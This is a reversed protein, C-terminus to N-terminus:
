EDELNAEREFQAIMEPLALRGRAYKASDSEPFDWRCRNYRRFAEPVSGANRWAEGSWFLGDACLPNDPWQKAFADFSNAATQYHTRGTSRGTAEALQGNKFHCQGVRFAMKAAFTHDPFREVFKSGVQAAVTYNTGKYFYENIRIMVNAILPSQPYTSALTVYSELADDFEGAEEYCQALKYQADAALTHDGYSKVITEYAEIAADWDELEQAFQGLLYSVRPIYKPDPFDELLENLIRRGAELERNAEEERELALHGKFLEFYSEAIHFRTQIALDDDGFIKSFAAVDGDTGVAVPVAIVHEFTGDSTNGPGSITEDVYHVSVTSGFFCEIEPLTASQNGPTPKQQDKLGFSGTFVGSHTLTEELTVTEEEGDDSTIRVRLKDRESSVDMDPDHVVVFLKEGVHLSTVPDEYNATTLMLSGDTKLRAEGTVVENTGAPRLKDDYNAGIIDPGTVNLVPMMYDIEDTMENMTGSIYSISMTATREPDYPIKDPSEPGGLQMLMQGVFRGEYLAWNDVDPPATTPEGFRESIQCTITQRVKGTVSLSVQISSMSDKAADPDYVEVTLPVQYAIGSIADPGASQDLSTFSIEPKRGEKTPPAISTGVVRIRADSPTTVFIQSDRTVSHGPFTNQEDNYRLYVTDGPKVKLTTDATKNTSDAAFTDIEGRFVGSNEETEIAELDFVAEGLAVQFTLSDKEATQDLDYDTIEVGIREGPDIRMLDKRITIVNGESGRLSNYSIPEVKGNYYTAQLKKTMLRNRQKGGGTIQDIYSIMATDGATLELVDNAALSLVDAEPPIIQTDEHGVELHNIAVAQGLYENFVARVHRYEGPEFVFSTIGNTVSTEPVMVESPKVARLEAIDPADLDVDSPRLPGLQVREINTNERALRAEIKQSPNVIHTFIALDHIGRELRLDIEAGSNGFLRQPPRILEGNIMLAITNAKINFRVGGARRQVFKGTWVASVQRKKKILDSSKPLQFELETVKDTSIPEGDRLLDRAQDWNTFAAKTIYVRRTMSGFETELAAFKPQPPHQALKFWFRGDYSGELTTRVPAQDEPNPTHINVSSITHLDKTDITLVKPTLGDPESQWYSEKKHDIAMLPNHEIASDTALAGAPLEGTEVMGEFVGSDPTVEELDVTVEDGSTTTLKVAVVDQDPSQDRDSDDVRIYIPNGPKIQNTPRKASQLLAALTSTEAAVQDSFRDAKKVVIKQSQADFDADAAIQIENDALIQYKFQGKFEDPYDVLITDNGKVQLVDDDPRAQGLVTDIETLFLGKGAGGSSLHALESDGGPETRIIVPIRANGRSIGLDSDQVVISLATGPTHWRKSEQGLRGVTRLLELQDMYRQEVGYVESLNYLTENALDIDPVRELVTRFIERAEERDGRRNALVGRLFEARIAIKASRNQALDTFIEEAKDFVKQAMYSEGIGFEAEMAQESDAFANKVSTFESRAVDFRGAMFYNRGLLLQVAAKDEADVSDKESNAIIWSRLIDEARNFNEDGGATIHSNAAFLVLETPIEAKHKDFLTENKKYSELAKERDGLRLFLGIELLPAIPSDAAVDMGLSGMRSYSRAIASRVRDKRGADINPQHNLLATLLAASEPWQEAAMLAQSYPWCRDFLGHGTDTTILSAQHLDTLRQMLSAKQSSALQMQALQAAARTNGVPLDRVLQFVKAKQAENMEEDKRIQEVWEIAPHEGLWEPNPFRADRRKLAERMIKEVEDWKGEKAFTDAAWTAYHLVHNSDHKIQPALFARRKEPEEINDLLKKTVDRANNGDEVRLRAQWYSRGEKELGTEILQQGIEAAYHGIIGHNKQCNNIWDFARKALAKDKLKATSRVLRIFSNYDNHTPTTQLMREVADKHDADKDSYQAVELLRATTPFHKPKAALVERFFPLGKPKLEGKSHHAWGEAQLGILRLKTEPALTTKLLRDRAEIGRSRDNAIAWDRNTKKQGAKDMVYKGRARKTKDKNRVEARAWDTLYKHLDLDPRKKAVAVLRNAVNQFNKEDEGARNLLEHMATRVGGENRPNKEVLDLLTAQASPWKKMKDRQLHFGLNYRVRWADETNKEAAARMVREVHAYDKEEKARWNIYQGAINHHYVAQPLISEAIQAAKSFNEERAYATAVLGRAWTHYYPAEEPFRKIYDNVPAEMAAAKTQADYLAQIYKRSTDSHKPKLKVAEALVKVANNHQKLHRYNEGLNYYLEFRQEDNMPPKKKLLKLGIANSAGHNNTDRFYGVGRLGAATCLHTAPLRDVMENALEAAKKVNSGGAEKYRNIANWGAKPADPGGYNWVTHWAEAIENKKKGKKDLLRALDLALEKAKGHKRHKQLFQRSTSVIDDDLSAAQLGDVLKVMVDAHKPHSPHAKIFAQGSRVLGFTRGHEHYHDVLQQLVQAGKATAHRTQALEAELDNAKKSVPNTEQAFLLPSAIFLFLLICRKMHLFSQPATKSDFLSLEVNKM